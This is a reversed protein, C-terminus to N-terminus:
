PQKSAPEGEAQEEEELPKPQIRSLQRVLWPRNLLWERERQEAAKIKRQREAQAAEQQALREADERAKQEALAKKFAEVRAQEDAQAKELAAKAARARAQQAAVSEAHHAILVEGALHRALAQEYNLRPGKGGALTYYGDCRTKLGKLDCAHGLLPGNGWPTKIQVFQECQLQSRAIVKDHISGVADRRDFWDPRVGQLRFATQLCQGLAPDKTAWQSQWDLQLDANGGSAMFRTQGMTPCANFLEDKETRHFVGRWSVQVPGSRGPTLVLWAIFDPASVRQHFPAAGEVQIEVNCSTESNRVEIGLPVRNPQGVQLRYQGAWAGVSAWFWVWGCLVFATKSWM